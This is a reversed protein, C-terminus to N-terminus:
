AGTETDAGSSSRAGRPETCVLAWPRDSVRTLVVVASRPGSLKLKRRVDEVDVASGRKRIDVTGVGLSRLRERLMKLNWPMSAEVELTRGFPTHIETDASLFAVRADIKWAGLSAALQEVLGARTVAPDPDLLYRGPMRIAVPAAQGAVLTQGGPLLTARRPATALAPSWLVAEKLEGRESVFELEWGHPVLEHPLAPSAKIGVAGVRDALALAWALPPESAGPPLRRGGVRRAPDIFVAEVGALDADRVDACVCRVKGGLGVADANICALRAHAPDSDVALVSEVSPVAALAILDGGIGTCLDAIRVFGEYRRAHHAAMRETSAQELGEPTFYLRDANEFKSRARARLRAQTLAAAVLEPPHEARLRTLVRIEDEPAPLEAAFRALLEQGQRSLLADIWSAPAPSADPEHRPEVGM